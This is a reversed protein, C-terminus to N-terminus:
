LSAFIKEHYNKTKIRRSAESVKTSMLEAGQIVIDSVINCLDDYIEELEVLLNPITETHYFELM